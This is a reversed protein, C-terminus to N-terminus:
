VTASRATFFHLILLVIGAILAIHIFGNTVHFAPFGVLCLVILATAIIGFVDENGAESRSLELRAQASTPGTLTM